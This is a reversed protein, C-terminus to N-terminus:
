RCGLWGRNVWEYVKGSPHCAAPSGPALVYGGEGKVEILTKGKADRALKRNPLVDSVRLYLHRGGAPTAALPADEPVHVGAAKMAAEWHGYADATEFDFVALGGSVAGAVVAIGVPDGSFWKQLEDPTPRRGQLEGWSKLAPAKSGDARVPIVSLGAAVYAIAIDLLSEAM